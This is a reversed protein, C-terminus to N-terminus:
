PWGPLSRLPGHTACVDPVIRDRDGRGKFCDVRMRHFDTRGSSNEVNRSLYASGGVAGKRLIELSLESQRYGIELLHERSGSHPESINGFEREEHGARRM